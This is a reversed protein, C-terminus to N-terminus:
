FLFFRILVLYKCIATSLAITLHSYFFQRGYIVILSGWHQSTNQITDGFSHIPETIFYLM